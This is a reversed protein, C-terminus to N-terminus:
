DRGILNLELQDALSCSTRNRQYGHCVLCKLEGEFNMIGSIASQAVLESPLPTQRDFDEKNETFNTFYVSLIESLKSTPDKLKRKRKQMKNEKPAKNGLADSTVCNM